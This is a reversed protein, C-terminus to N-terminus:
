VNKYKEVKEKVKPYRNIEEGANDIIFQMIKEEPTELITQYTTLFVKIYLEEKTM